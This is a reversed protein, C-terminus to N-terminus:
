SRNLDAASLDPPPLDVLRLAEALSVPDAEFADLSFQRFPRTADYAPGIHRAVIRGRVGAWRCGAQAAMERYVDTMHGVPMIEVLSQPGQGRERDCFLLPALGAGHIAVIAEAERFLRIQQIPPLTEPFVTEYGLEGLLTEIEAANRLARTDRRSLFVRKPLAPREAADLARALRSRPEDERMWAARASRLGPWPDIEFAVGEGEVRADTAWTKLGFLAAAARVYGPVATPFLVLAEDPSRGTARALHFFLPLHNNLFHAWNGPDRHRSDFIWRGPPVTERGPASFRRRAPPDAAIRGSLIRLRTEAGRREPLALIESEFRFRDAMWSPAGVLYGAPVVRGPLVEDIVRAASEEAVTMETDECEPPIPRGYLEALESLCSGAGRDCSEAPGNPGHKGDKRVIRGFFPSQRRTKSM